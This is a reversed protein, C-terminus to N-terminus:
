HSLRNSKYMRRLFPKSGHLFTRALSQGFITSARRTGKFILVRDCIRFGCGSVACTRWLRREHISRASRAACFPAGFGGNRVSFPEQMKGSPSQHSVSMSRRFCPVSRLWKSSSICTSSCSSSKTAEAESSSVSDDSSLSAEKGAPGRGNRFRALNGDSGECRVASTLAPCSGM